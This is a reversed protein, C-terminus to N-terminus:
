SRRSIDVTVHVPQTRSTKLYNPLRDNSRISLRNIKVKINSKQVIPKRKTIIKKMKKMKKPLGQRLLQWQIITHRQKSKKSKRKKSTTAQNTVNVTARRSVNTPNKTSTPKTRQINRNEDPNYNNILVRIQEETLGRQRCKQRFRRLKANGHCRKSRKSRRRPAIPPQSSISSISTSSPRASPSSMTRQDKKNALSGKGSNNM